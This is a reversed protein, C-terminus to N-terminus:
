LFMIKRMDATFVVAYIFLFCRQPQIIGAGSNCSLLRRAFFYIFLFHCGNQKNKKKHEDKQWSSNVGKGELFILSCKQKVPLHQPMYKCSIDHIAISIMFVYWIVYLPLCCIFSPQPTLQKAHKLKAHWFFVFYVLPKTLLLPDQNQIKVRRVCMQEGWRNTKTANFSCGM